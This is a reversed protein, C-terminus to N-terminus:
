KMYRTSCLEQNSLRIHKYMTNIRQRKSNHKVVYKVHIRGTLAHEVDEVMDPTSEISVTIKGDLRILGHIWWQRDWAGNSANTGYILRQGFASRSARFEVFWVTMM